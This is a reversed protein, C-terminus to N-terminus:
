ALTPFIAACPELADHLWRFRAPNKCIIDRYVYPLSFTLGVCDLISFGCKELLTKHEWIPREGIHDTEADTRDLNGQFFLRVRSNFHALNPVSMLFYGDPRLVRSIESLAQSQESFGIHELVDLLMVLDFSQDEHPLNRADGLRVLDSAYNADVGAITWGREHFREVLVGEGCGVDLIRTSRPLANVFDEVFRVKRLYTPTYSWNPDLNRYDGKKAYEWGRCNAPPSVDSMRSFGQQRNRNIPWYGLNFSM